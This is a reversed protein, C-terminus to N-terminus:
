PKTAGEFTQDSFPSSMPTQIHIFKIDGATHCANCTQTLESYSRKFGESSQKEAAARMHTLSMDAKIVLDVPINTYRIAAEHLTEEIKTLEFLVLPWNQARGAFWLKIHRMQILVMIDGLGPQVPADRLSQQSPPSAFPIDDSQVPAIAILLLAASVIILKM